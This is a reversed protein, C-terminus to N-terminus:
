NRNLKLIYKSLFKHPQVDFVEAKTYNTPVSSFVSDWDGNDKVIWGRACKNCSYDYGQIKSDTLKRLKGGNCHPCDIFEVNDQQEEVIVQLTVPLCWDLIDHLAARTANEISHCWKTILELHGTEYNLIRIRKM